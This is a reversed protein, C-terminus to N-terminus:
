TRMQALERVRASAAEFAAVAAEHREDLGLEGEDLMGVDAHLQHLADEARGARERADTAAAVLGPSRTVAQAPVAHAARQGPGDAQGLGRPSRCGRAGRRGARTRRRRAREGSEQRQAVIETLAAHSRELEAQLEAEAGRVQEAEAELAEPDRGTRVLEQEEALSRAREAALSATGRYREELASLRYWTEQTRAVM